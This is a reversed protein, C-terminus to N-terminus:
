KLRWLGAVVGYGGNYGVVDCEADGATAEFVFEDRSKQEGGRRRARSVVRVDHLVERELKVGGDESGGPRIRQRLRIRQCQRKWVCARKSVPVGTGRWGRACAWVHSRADEQFTGAGVCSAPHHVVHCSYSAASTGSTDGNQALSPSCTLCSHLPNTSSAIPVNSANPCHAAVAPPDISTKSANSSTLLPISPYRSSPDSPCQKSPKRSSTKM